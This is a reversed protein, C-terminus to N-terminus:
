LTGETYKEPKDILTRFFEINRRLYQDALWQMRESRDNGHAVLFRMYEPCAAQFRVYIRLLVRGRETSDVERLARRQRILEDHFRLMLQDVAARWLSEKSGFHYAVLGRNVDARREIERVSTRDFGSSSFLEIASHLLKGRTDV